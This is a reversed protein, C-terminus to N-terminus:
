LAGFLCARQIAALKNDAKLKVMANALHYNVTRESCGMRESSQRATLGEFALTLCELERPTLSLRDMAIARKVLPWINLASWAVAAAEARDHLQRPSFM